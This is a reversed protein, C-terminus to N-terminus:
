KNHIQYVLLLIADSEALTVKVNCIKSLTSLKNSNINYGGAKYEKLDNLSLFDIRKEKGTKILKSAESIEIMRNHSWNVPDICYWIAKKKYRNKRVTKEQSLIKEIAKEGQNMLIKLEYKNCNSFDDNLAKRASEKGSSELIYKVDNSVVTDNPMNKEIAMHMPLQNAEFKLKKLLDYDIGKEGTGKPLTLNHFKQWTTPAVEKFEIRNIKLANKLNVVNEKLIDMRSNAFRNFNPRLNIQELSCKGGGFPKLLDVIDMFEEPMKFTKLKGNELIAIGGAMGPDIGLLPIM